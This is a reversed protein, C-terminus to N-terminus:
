FSSGPKKLFALEEDTSVRGLIANRHPYRGFRDIIVKHKYEFELKQELGPQSFMQVAQQHIMASESHMLPMYIFSLKEPQSLLEKDAGIDIAAHTLAVALFDYAFAAAKDRFMNRSFQDLVIIEALRGGASHRWQYLEGCIAQQYIAHFKQKILADFVANKEWWQKPEIENFWFNLVDQAQM